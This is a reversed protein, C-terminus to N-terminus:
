SFDTSCLCVTHDGESGIDIGIQLSEVTGFLYSDSCLLEKQGSTSLTFTVSGNSNTVASIQSPM